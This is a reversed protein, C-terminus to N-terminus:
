ILGTGERAARLLMGSRNAAIVCKRYAPLQSPIFASLFLFWGVWARGAEVILEGIRRNISEV